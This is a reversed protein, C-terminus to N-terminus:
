LFILLDSPSFKPRLLTAVIADLRVSVYFGRLETLSMSLEHTTMAERLRTRRSMPAEASLTKCTLKTLQPLSSPAFRAM